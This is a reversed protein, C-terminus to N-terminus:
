YEGILSKLTEVNDTIINDVGLKLLALMEEKENVTWVHVEKGCARAKAIFSETANGAEIAFFDVNLENIQGIAVYMIYGTKIKSDIAEIAQLDDYNLGTVVCKDYFDKEKILAAVEEIVTPEMASGKIEINLKLDDGVFDMVEELTPILEGEYAESFWSGADLTKITMLNLESPMKDLGTTRKFTKDHLLIIHHDKTAQVDIEAYDVEAAKALAIAALTNEPAKRSMGRHATIEVNYKIDKLSADLVFAYAITGIIVASVLLLWTVKKTLFKFMHGNDQSSIALPQKTEPAIHYFLQTLRIITLPMMIASIGYFLVVGLSAMLSSIISQDAEPFVMFLIITVLSLVAMALLVFVLEIVAGFFMHKFVFRRHGKIVEYSMKLFRKSKVEKLLLVHMAFFWRIILIIALSGMAILTLLYLSNDNIYAMIFGPIKLTKFIHTKVNADMMPALVFFYLLLLIGDLGFLYKLKKLAYSLIGFYSPVTETVILQHTLVILGGSEIMLAVLGITMSFVVLLIGQPSGLFKLILSNTMYDYGSSKMLGNFILSFGPLILIFILLSTALQYGIYQNYHKRFVDFSTKYFRLTAKM